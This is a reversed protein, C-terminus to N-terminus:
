ETVGFICHRCKKGLVLHAIKVGVDNIESVRDIYKDKYMLEKAGSRSLKVYFSYRVGEREIVLVDRLFRHRRILYDVSHCELIDIIDAIGRYKDELECFEIYRNVM